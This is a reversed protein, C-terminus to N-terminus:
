RANRLPDVIDDAQRDHELQNGLLHIFPHYFADLASGPPVSSSVTLGTPPHHVEITTGNNNTGWFLTVELDGSNRRALEYRAAGNIATTSM